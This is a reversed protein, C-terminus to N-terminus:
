FRLDDQFWKWIQNISIMSILILGCKLTKLIICMNSQFMTKYHYFGVIFM